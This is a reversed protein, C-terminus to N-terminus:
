GGGIAPFISITDTDLLCTDMANELFLADRGNVFVHIHENINGQGDYFGETLAPYRKSIEGLLQKITTGEPLPLDITKQGVALRLTAFFNVKM